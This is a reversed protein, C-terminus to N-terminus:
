EAGIVREAEAFVRREQVSVADGCRELQQRAKNLAEHASETRDLRFRTIALFTSHLLADGSPLSGLRELEELAADVRGLRYDAAAVLLHSRPDNQRADSAMQAAARALEYLETPLGAHVLVHYSFQYLLTPSRRREIEHRLASEIRRLAEEPHRAAAFLDVTYGFCAAAYPQRPSDGGFLSDFAALLM